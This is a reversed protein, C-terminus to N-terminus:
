AGAAAGAATASLGFEQALLAYSRRRVAPDHAWTNVVLEALGYDAALARLRAGVHAATGVFARERLAQLVPADAPAFGQAAVEAPSRLPGFVGRQRDIRWRDRSLAHHRAEDESDAVL